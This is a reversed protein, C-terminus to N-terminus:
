INMWLCKGGYTLLVQKYSLHKDSYEVFIMIDYSYLLLCGKIFVIRYLHFGQCGGYGTIM